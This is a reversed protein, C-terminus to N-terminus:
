WMTTLLMYSLVGNRRALMDALFIDDTVDMFRLEDRDSRECEIM